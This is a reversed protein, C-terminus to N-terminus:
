AYSPHNKLQTVDDGKSSQDRPSNLHVEASSTPVFVLFRFELKRHSKSFAWVNEVTGKCFKTLTRNKTKEM